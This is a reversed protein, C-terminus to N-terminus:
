RYLYYGQERTFLKSPFAMVQIIDLTEVRWQM